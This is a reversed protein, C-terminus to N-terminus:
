NKKQKYFCTPRVEMFGGRDKVYVYLRFLDLPNKSITPCTTIPTRREEMFTLLKDLWARRDPSDDMEYLKSLSDTKPSAPTRPWSPSSLEGYDEHMSNMSAAGPSPVTSQPTTPHSYHGMENKRNSKPTTCQPDEGSAASANSLTSQQSGEDIPTGDPGTTVVSTVSGGSATTVHTSMGGQATTTIGNDLMESGMQTHSNPTSSPPPMPGDHSHSNPMLPSSAPPMNPPGMTPPPGMGSHHHGPPPPGMHYNQPPSPSPPASGPVNGFGMKHQLHQKLYHPPRPPGAPGPSPSGPAQPPGNGKALTVPGQWSQQYPTFQSNQMHNSSRNPYQQPSMNNNPPAQSAPPGYGQGPYQINAQPRPPYGSQAYQQNPQYLPMQQGAPGSVMGPHGKYGHVHAPHPSSHQAPYSGQTAMPSHSM